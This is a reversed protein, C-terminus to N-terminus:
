VLIMNKNDLVLQEFSAEVGNPTILSVVLCFSIIQDFLSMASLPKRCCTDSVTVLRGIQFQWAWIGSMM